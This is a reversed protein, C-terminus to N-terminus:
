DMGSRKRAAPDEPSGPEHNEIRVIPAPPEAVAFFRPDVTLAHPKRAAILVLEATISPPFGCAHLEERYAALTWATSPQTETEGTLDVPEEPITLPERCYPCIVKEGPYNQGGGGCSCRWHMKVPTGDYVQIGYAWVVRATM